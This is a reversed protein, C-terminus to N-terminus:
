PVVTGPKGALEIMLTMETVLGDESGSYGVSKFRINGSRDLVFKTPIGEVQYKTVVENEDDMLVNFTYKNKTIFDSANKLKEKGNEWTDVFLFVVDDRDVHNTLARQMGPFSAKCPGCWTAWFDLVVVKGRLSELSVEQGDMNRLTFSPAPENIMKMKLEELSKAKAKEELMALSKAAAIELTNNAAFVRRYQDKMAGTAYGGSILDALTAEAKAAGQAEELYVCYRENMDPSEFKGNECAIQQYKLADDSKGLRYMLLAYTDSYMAYNGEMYGKWTNATYYGPKSEAPDDIVSKILRLSEYSMNAAKQLLAKDLKAGEEMPWDGSLNWAVNNLSSAKSTPSGVMALYKDFNAYDEQNGYLNALTGAMRDIATQDKGGMKKWQEFLAAKKAVDKEEYFKNSVDAMATEGKPYKKIIGDAAAKQEDADEAKIVRALEMALVLDKETAKRKKRLAEIRGKTEEIAPASNLSMALSAYYPGWFPDEKATPQMALEANLLESAKVLDNDIGIFRSMRTYGLSISGQAGAVPTHRDAQYLMVPQYAVTEQEGNKVLLFFAADKDGTPVAGTVKGDKSSSEIDRADFEQGNIFFAQVQAGDPLDMGEFKISEGAKPYDSAVKITQGNVATAGVLCLGLM